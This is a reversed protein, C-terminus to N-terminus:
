EGLSQHIEEVKAKHECIIADLSESLAVFEVLLEDYTIKGKEYKIVLPEAKLDRIITEEQLKISLMVAEALREGIFSPDAQYEIAPIEFDKSM